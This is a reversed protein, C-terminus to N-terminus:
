VVFLYTSSNIFRCLSVLVVPLSVNRHADGSCLSRYKHQLAKVRLYADGNAFVFTARLLISSRKGNCSEVFLDGLQIYGAQWFLRYISSSFSCPFFFVCVSLLHCYRGCGHPSSFCSSTTSSRFSVILKSTPLFVCSRRNISCLAVVIGSFVFRYRALLNLLAKQVIDKSFPAADEM